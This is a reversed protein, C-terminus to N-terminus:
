PLVGTSTDHALIAAVKKPEIKIKKLVQNVESDADLIIKISFDEHCFSHEFFTEFSHSYPGHGIDHLLAAAMVERRQKLTSNSKFSPM